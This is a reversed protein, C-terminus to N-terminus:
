SRTARGRSRRRCDRARRARRSPPRARDLSGRGTIAPRGAASPGPLLQGAVTVRRRNIVARGDAAAVVSDPVALKTAHGKDDVLLHTQMHGGGRPADGYVVHHWGSMAKTPTGPAAGVMSPAHREAAFLVGAMVLILVATTLALLTVRAHRDSTRLQSKMIAIRNLLSWAVRGMECIGDAVRLLCRPRGDLARALDCPSLCRYPTACVSVCSCRHRPIDSCRQSLTMMSM